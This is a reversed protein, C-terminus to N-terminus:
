AWGGKQYAIKGRCITLVVDGDKSLATLDADKGPKISGKRDFINLQKAPNVSAMQVIDEMSCGTFKKMNQVAENMKLVSGALSGNELEAKGDKVYVDQGGLDYVGNELGKARMSDTVMIMGEPGKLRYALLIMEPAVHVGDAIIECKIRPDLLAFGATGAERHHLGRMGNFLHTAQRVGHDAASEGESFLADSHGISPIVGKNTLYDALELGGELEPAMTVLKIAGGAKEQWQEFLPIDPTLFHTPLQAGARKPSLFPGEVHVGLIEAGKPPRSMCVALNSLAKEISQTDSTMTTPLFATTGEQVLQNAMAALAEEESDMADAGGAGHIHMDIMGPILEITQSLKLEIYGSHMQFKEMPGVEAVKGEKVLVYGPRFTEFEAYVTAHTIALM